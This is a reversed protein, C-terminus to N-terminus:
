RDTVYAWDDTILGDVGATVLPEVPEPSPITWADVRLGRNQIRDVLTPDALLPEYNAHVAGCGLEVAREVGAATDDGVTHALTWQGDTATAYERLAAPLFSSVTVDNSVARCADAVRDAIGTQKLEVIVGVEEPIAELADALTPVREDSGDVGHARLEDLSLGDVRGEIGLLRETTPDHFVVVEGTGCARADLEVRDVHPAANQFARITNEPARDPCGRHGIVTLSVARRKGGVAYGTRDGGVPVLEKGARMRDM